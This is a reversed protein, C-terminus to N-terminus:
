VGRMQLRELKNIFIHAVYEGSSECVVWPLPKTQFFQHPVKTDISCEDQTLKYEIVHVSGSLFGQVTSMNLRSIVHRM